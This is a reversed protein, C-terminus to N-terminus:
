DGSSDSGAAPPGHARTGAGALMPELQQARHEADPTELLLADLEVARLLNATEEMEINALLRDRGADQARERRGVGDDRGIALMAVRERAAQRHRAEHRLHVT